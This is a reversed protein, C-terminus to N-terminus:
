KLREVSSFYHGRGYPLFRTVFRTLLPAEDVPNVGVTDVGPGLVPNSLLCEACSPPLSDFTCTNNILIFGGRLSCSFIFGHNWM